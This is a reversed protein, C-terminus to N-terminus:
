IGSGGFFEEIPTLLMDIEKQSLVKTHHYDTSEKEDDNNIAPGSDITTLLMDIDDQSLDETKSYIARLLMDIEEQSRYKYKKIDITVIIKWRFINQITKSLSDLFKSGNDKKNLEYKTQFNIEIQL